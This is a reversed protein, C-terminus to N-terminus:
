VRWHTQASQNRSGIFAFLRQEQLGDASPLDGGFRNTAIQGVPMKSTM